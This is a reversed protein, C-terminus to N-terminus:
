GRKGNRRLRGMEEEGEGEMRVRGRVRGRVRVM